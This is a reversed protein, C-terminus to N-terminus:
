LEKESELLFALFRADIHWDEWSHHRNLSIILEVPHDSECLRIHRLINQLFEFRHFSIVDIDFVDTDLLHGVHTM